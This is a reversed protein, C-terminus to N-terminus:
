ATNVYIVPRVVTASADGPRSAEQTEFSGYPETHTHTEDSLPTDWVEDGSWSHNFSIKSYGTRADDKVLFFNVGQREVIETDLEREVFFVTVETCTEDKVGFFVHAISHRDGDIHKTPIKFLPYTFIKSKDKESSKYKELADNRRQERAQEEHSTFKTTTVSLDTASSAGCGM